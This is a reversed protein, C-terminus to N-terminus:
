FVALLIILPTLIIAWVLQLISRNWESNPYIRKTSAMIIVTVANQLLMVVVLTATLFFVFRAETCVHRWMCPADHQKEELEPNRDHIRQLLAFAAM